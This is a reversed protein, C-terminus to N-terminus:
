DDASRMIQVLKDRSLIEPQEFEYYGHVRWPDPDWEFCLHKCTEARECDLCKESHHFWKLIDAECEETKELWGFRPSTGYDGYEAVFTSWLIRDPADCDNSLFGEVYHFPVQKFENDINDANYIALIHAINAMAETWGNYDLAWYLSEFKSQDMM